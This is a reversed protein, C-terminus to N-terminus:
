SYMELSGKRILRWGISLIYQNSYMKDMLYHNVDIWKISIDARQVVSTWTSICKLNLIRCLSLMRGSAMKLEVKHSQPFKIKVLTLHNQKTTMSMM